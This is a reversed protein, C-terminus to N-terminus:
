HTPLPITRTTWGSTRLTSRITCNIPTLQNLTVVSIYVSVLLLKVKMYGLQMLQSIPCTTFVPPAHTLRGLTWPLMSAELSWFKEKLNQIKKKIGRGVWWCLVSLWGPLNGIDGKPLLWFRVRSCFNGLCTFSFQYYFRSVWPAARAECLGRDGRWVTPCVLPNWHPGIQKHGGFYFSNEMNFALVVPDLYETASKLIAWFLIFIM